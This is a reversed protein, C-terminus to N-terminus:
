RKKKRWKASAGSRSLRTPEHIEFLVIETVPGVSKVTLSGAAWICVIMDECHFDWTFVCVHQVCVCM